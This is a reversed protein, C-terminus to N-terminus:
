NLTALVSCTSDVVKVELNSSTNKYYFASIKQSDYKAHDIALVQDIGLSIACNRDAKSMAGLSIPALSPSIKAKAQNFSSLYDIGTSFINSLASPPNTEKGFVEGSSTGGGNNTASGTGSNTGPATSSTPNPNIQTPAPTPKAINTTSNSSSFNIAFAIGGVLVLFGAALQFQTQFRVYVSRKAQTREAKLTAIQEDIFNEMRRQEMKTRPPAKPLGKLLDDVFSNEDQSM